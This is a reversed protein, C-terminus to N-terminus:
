HHHRNYRAANRRVYSCRTEKDQVATLFVHALKEVVGAAAEQTGVEQAGAASPASPVALEAGAAPVVVVLPVIFRSSEQGWRM